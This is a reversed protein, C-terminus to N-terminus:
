GADNGPPKGLPEAPSGYLREIREQTLLSRLETLVQLAPSDGRRAAESLERVGEEMRGPALHLCALQLAAYRNGAEAATRLWHETRHRHIGALLLASARHGTSAASELYPIADAEDYDWEVLLAGLTAAAGPVGADAAKRYWYVAEARDGLRARLDGLVFMVRPNGEEARPRLVECYRDALADPDLGGDLAAETITRRWLAHPAPLLDVTLAGHARWTGPTEGPVLLSLGAVNFHDRTAWRLAEEFTEESVSDSASASDCAPDSEPDPEPQHLRNLLNESVAERVGCRALDIAARVLLQGRPHATRTSRHRWEERLHHGLALYAATGEREAHTAAETTRPDDAHSLRKREGASWRHPLEVTHATAVLRDTRCERYYDADMTALVVVGLANLRGLLGSDLGRGGLHGELADLWLVYKGPRDEAAGVLHPRYVGPRDDLLPPLARLDAGPEPAYMRHGALRTVANWATHSTGSLPKTLILVFGTHELRDALEADCDRAVYPPVDPLGPVRRTPRVGFEAPGVEEVPRWDLRSAPTGYHTTTSNNTTNNQVGVVEGHITNGTLDVNDGAVHRQSDVSGIYGIQTVAANVHTDSITNTIRGDPSPADASPTLGFMALTRLILTVGEPHTEDFHRLWTHWGARGTPRGLFDRSPLMEQAEYKRVIVSEISGRIEPWEATRVARALLEALQEL